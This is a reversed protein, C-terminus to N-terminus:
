PIIFERLINFGFGFGLSYTGERLGDKYSFREPYWTTAPILGGAYVGALRPVSIVRRGSPTRATINQLLADTLRRRFGRRQSKIFIGDVRLAESLGYTVSQEIANQGFNSGYRKGYGEAGQGWEPPADSAQGFGAGIGAGILAGPGVTDLAYRRFRARKTPRTYGNNVNSSNTSQPLAPAGHPNLNNEVQEKKFIDSKSSETEAEVLSGVGTAAQEVAFARAPFIVSSSTQSQAVVADAGCLLVSSTFMFLLWRKCLNVQVM